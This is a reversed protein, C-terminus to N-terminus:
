GVQIAFCNVALITVESVGPAEAQVHLTGASTVVVKGMMAVTIQNPSTAPVVFGAAALTSDPDITATAGAQIVQAACARETGTDAEACFTVWLQWTGVGMSPTDLMSSMSGTLPYSTASSSVVHLGQLDVTPGGPNVIAPFVDTSSEIFGIGASGGSSTHVGLIELARLRALVNAFQASFAEFGKGIPRQTPPM